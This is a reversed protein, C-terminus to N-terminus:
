LSGQIQSLMMVIVLDSEGLTELLAVDGVWANLFATTASPNLDFGNVDFCHM